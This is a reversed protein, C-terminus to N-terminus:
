GDNSSRNPCANRRFCQWIREFPWFWFNVSVSWADSKKVSFFGQYNRFYNLALLHTYAAPSFAPRIIQNNGQKVFCCNFRWRHYSYLYRFIYRRIPDFKFGSPINVSPSARKSCGTRTDSEGISKEFCPKSNRKRMLVRHEAHYPEFDDNRM